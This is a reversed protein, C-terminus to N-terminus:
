EQGNNDVRKTGEYIQPASFNFLLMIKQDPSQVIRGFTRYHYDRNLGWQEYIKRALQPCELKSYKPEGKCRRWSVADTQSSSVPRILLSKTKDNLLIQVTEPNNLSQFAGLGFGIGNNWLTAIPEVVKQFYQSRVVQYGDMDIENLLYDSM